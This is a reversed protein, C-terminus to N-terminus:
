PFGKMENVVYGKHDFLKIQADGKSSLSLTMRLSGDEDHFRVAANDTKDFGMEIKQKGKGHLSMMPQSTKQDLELNAKMRGDKVMALTPSQHPDLGLLLGMKGEGDHFTLAVAGGAVCQFQARTKGQEDTLVFKQARLESESPKKADSKAVEIILHQPEPKKKGFM